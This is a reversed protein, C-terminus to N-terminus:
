LSSKITNIVDQEYECLTNILSEDSVTYKIRFKNKEKVSFYTKYSGLLNNIEKLASTIITKIDNTERIILSIRNIIGMKLVQTQAHEQLKSYKDSAEKLQGYKMELQNYNKNIKDVSNESTIDKFVVTKMGEYDFSYIYYYLYEEKSNQYSCITHFNEKTSLLIDLPTTDKINDTSLLCINFNFRKKFKEFSNFNSFTNDFIKNRFIIKGDQAFVCVPDQFNNYIELINIDKM